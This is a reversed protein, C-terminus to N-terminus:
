DVGDMYSDWDGFPSSWDTDGKPKVSVHCMATDATAGHWHWVGAPIVVVEGPRIRRKESETAVVGEGEVVHLVQDDKHTHPKTRSGAEFWVGVVEPQGDVDPTHARQQLVGGGPFWDANAPPGAESKDIKFHHM